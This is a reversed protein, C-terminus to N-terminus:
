EGGMDTTDIPPRCDGEHGMDFNDMDETFKIWVEKAAMLWDAPKPETIGYLMLLSQAHENFQKMTQGTESMYVKAFNLYDKRQQDIGTTTGLNQMMAMDLLGM